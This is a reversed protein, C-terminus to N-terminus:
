VTALCQKLLRRLRVDSDGGSARATVAVAQAAHETAVFGRYFSESLKLRDLVPLWWRALGGPRQDAPRSALLYLATEQAGALRGREDKTICDLDPSTLAASVCLAVLRASSEFGAQATALLSPALPLLAQQGARSSYDHVTRAVSGLVPHVSSPRDTWPERALKSVLEMVCPESRAVRAYYANGQAGEAYLDTHTGPGSLSAGAATRSV